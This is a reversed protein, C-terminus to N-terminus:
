LGEEAAGVVGEAAVAEEECGVLGDDEVFDGAVEGASAVGVGGGGSSGGGGGGLAGLVLM